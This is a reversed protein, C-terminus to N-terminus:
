TRLFMDNADNCRRKRHENEKLLTQLFPRNSIEPHPIQLDGQLVLSEKRV